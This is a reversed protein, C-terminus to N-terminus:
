GEIEIGVESLLAELKAIRQRSQQLDIQMHIICDFRDTHVWGDGVTRGMVGDTGGCNLCPSIPRGCWRCKHKDDAM